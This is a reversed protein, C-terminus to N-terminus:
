LYFSRLHEPDPNDSVEVIFNDAYAQEIQMIVCEKDERRRIPPNNIYRESWIEIRTNTYLKKM